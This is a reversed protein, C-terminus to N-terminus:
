VYSAGGVPDSDEKLRLLSACHDSGCFLGERREGYGLIECYEVLPLLQESPSLLFCDLRQGKGQFKATYQQGPEALHGRWTYNPRDWAELKSDTVGTPYRARWVDFFEGKKLLKKFRRHEAPTFSPIGTDDPDKPPQTGKKGGVFCFEEDTWWEYISGNNNSDNKVWHTGDMYDKAVNMDWCWLMPRQAKACLDLLKIRDKLFQLMRQDWQRQKSFSEEKTGNNPVYIQLIDISEFSFFQIHGEQHHQQKSSVSTNSPSTSTTTKGEKSHFIGDSDNAEQGTGKKLSL